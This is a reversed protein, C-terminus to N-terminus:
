RTKTVIFEILFWLFIFTVSVIGVNSFVADNTLRLYWVGIMGTIITIIIALETKCYRLGDSLEISIVSWLFLFSIASALAFPLFFVLMGRGYAWAGFLGGIVSLAIFIEVDQKKKRKIVHHPHILRNHRFHTLVMIATTGVWISYPVLSTVGKTYLYFGFLVFFALTAQSEITKLKNKNIM